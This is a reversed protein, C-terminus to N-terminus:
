KSNTTETKRNEKEYIGREIKNIRNLIGLMNKQIKNINLYKEYYYKKSNYYYKKISKYSENKSASIEHDHIYKSNLCIGSKYGIDKIKKALINEEYYLFTNEDFFGVKKGIELNLLFLCGPAVGVEQIKDAPELYKVLKKSIFKRPIYFYEWFEDWFTPINWFQSQNYIDGKSTRIAGLIAYESNKEMKKIIKELEKNEIIIDPNMIFAYDYNDKELIKLGFNNGYAYGGNKKTKVIHIKENEIEKLKEYSDNNSCNDVIVIKQICKYSNLLNAKEVILNYNNYNLIVVGVKKM